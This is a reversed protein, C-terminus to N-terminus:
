GPVQNNNPEAQMNCPLVLFSRALTADRHRATNGRSQPSVVGRWQSDAGDRQNAVGAGLWGCGCLQYSTVYCEEAKLASKCTFGGIYQVIQKILM